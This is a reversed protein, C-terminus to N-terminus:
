DLKAPQVMGVQKDLTTRSVNYCAVVDRVHEASDVFLEKTEWIQKNNLKPKREGVRGRMRAATLRM